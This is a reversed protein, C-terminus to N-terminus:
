CWISAKRRHTTAGKRLNLSLSIESAYHDFIGLFVFASASCSTAIPSRHRTFIAQLHFFQKACKSRAALRMQFM